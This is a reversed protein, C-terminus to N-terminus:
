EDDFKWPKSKDSTDDEDEEGHINALCDPCLPVDKTGPRMVARGATEAGCKSCPMM